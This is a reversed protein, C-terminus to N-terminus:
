PSDVPRCTCGCGVCCQEVSPECAPTCRGTECQQWAACDTSGNPCDAGWCTPEPDCRVVFPPLGPDGGDPECVLTSGCPCCEAPRTPSVALAACCDRVRECTATRGLMGPVGTPVLDSCSSVGGECPLCEYYAEENECYPLPASRFAVDRCLCAGPAPSMIICPVCRESAEDWREAAGCGAPPEARPESRLDIVQVLCGSLGLAMLFLAEAGRRTPARTM